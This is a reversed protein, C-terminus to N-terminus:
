VHIISSQFDFNVLHILFQVAQKEAVQQVLRRLMQLATMEFM